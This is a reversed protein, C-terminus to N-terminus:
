KVGVVVCHRLEFDQRRVAWYVDGRKGFAERSGGPGGLRHDLFKERFRGGSTDNGVVAVHNIFGDERRQRGKTITMWFHLESITDHSGRAQSHSILRIGFLGEEHCVKALYVHLVLPPFFTKGLNFGMVTHLKKHVTLM